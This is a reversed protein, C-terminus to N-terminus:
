RCGRRPSRTRRRPGPATRGPVPYRDADVGLVAAHGTFPHTSVVPVSASVRARRMSVRPTAVMMWVEVDARVAHQLLGSGIEGGLLRHQVGDAATNMALPPTLM